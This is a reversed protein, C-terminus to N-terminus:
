EYRLAEVPNRTAARWSQWSVTLLAIGLALLGALAFIWWSLATKYAFNELWKHMSYYAIPTAIVFAIAVWKVFDRNLIVLVESIRAGNVKRIGIERIRQQIKFSAMSFVGLASIIVAILSFLVLVKSQAYEGSYVKQYSDTLFEFQFPTEPNIKQWAADIVGLAREHSAPNISIIFCYNFMKRPAIALPKEESHLNTYHFDPVVAVIEGEPFLDPLFFNLRFRKGVAEEPTAIGLLRLASENLIYKERFTGLNKEKEAIIEPNAGANRLTGLEAAAAEWQQTSTTGLNVSGALPKIGLVGFFNSDTTFINIFQGEKKEVGEMEFAVGDLIDGGPEEMAATMNVIEPHKLLENKLSEYRQVVEWQNDAIVVLNANEAAPHSSLIFNMQQKLVVAGSIALISLAFQLILPFSFIRGKPNTDNLSSKIPTTFLPLVSLAAIILIFGLSIAIIWPLTNLGFIPLDLMKSISDAFILGTAMSVLSLVLSETAVTVALGSKTAGNILKVKVSKLQAIFRVRNLNMFNILAIFLIIIAGSVLLIISRIDGNKEMERSKHSFLHIDTLKQLYLIAVPSGAQSESKWKKEVSNKITEIDAGPKMLFYTYAWNKKEEDDSYSTLLDAHFHSNAPFDEMVGDIVYIQASPVQQHQISIDKGIINLDGFYKMALSRSIFARGPQKLAHEPNGSLIKFDFIRFFSSDTSFAKESYFKKEGIKVIARRFPVLRVINEISPYEEPLQSTWEGAVRAPHMSTAGNNSDVTVRYIRDAKTHFSDYSLENKVYFFIVMLVAVSVALGLANIAFWRWDKILKRFIKM